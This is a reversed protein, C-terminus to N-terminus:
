IIVQPEKSPATIFNPKTSGTTSSEHHRSLVFDYIAASTNRLYRGIVTGRRLTALHRWWGGSPASTSLLTYFTTFSLGLVVLVFSTTKGYHCPPVGPMADCTLGATAFIFLFAPFYNLFGLLWISTCVGLGAACKIVAHGQGKIKQGWFWHMGLIDVLNPTSLELKLKTKKEQLACVNLILSVCVSM